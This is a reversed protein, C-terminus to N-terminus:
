CGVPEAPTVRSARLVVRGARRLTLSMFGDPRRAICVGPGGDWARSWHVRLVVAGPAAARLAIANRARDLQTEWGRALPYREAVYVTEWRTASPM